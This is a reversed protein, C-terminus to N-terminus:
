SSFLCLVTCYLLSLGKLHLCCLNGNEVLIVSFMYKFIIYCKVCFYLNSHIGKGKPLKREVQERAKQISTDKTVDIDVITLHKSCAVKLSKAGQETLCGAYVRFGLKDLRQALLNGFGTDCGTIFVHKSGYYRVKLRRLFWRVTLYLVALLALTEFFM